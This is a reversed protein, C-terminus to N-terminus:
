PEQTYVTAGAFGAACDTDTPDLRYDADRDINTYTGSLLEVVCARGNEQTVCGNTPTTWVNADYDVTVQGGTDDCDGELNFFVNHHVYADGPRDPELGFGISGEISNYRLEVTGMMAIEAPGACGSGCAETEEIMNQEILYSGPDGTFIGQTGNWWIRNGRIEANTMNLDFADIHAEGCGTGLNDHVLNYEIVAGDVANSSFLDGCLNGNGGFDSPGIESYRVTVNDAGDWWFFNRIHVDEIIIGDNDVDITTGSAPAQEGYVYLRNTEQQGTTGGGELVLNATNIVISGDFIATETAAPRMTVTGLARSAITQDGYTGGKILILDNTSAAQYAVNLSSCAQADIYDGPTSQRTCSGGNTDVWLNATGPEGGGGDLIVRSGVVGGTLVAVTALAALTRNRLNRSPTRPSM